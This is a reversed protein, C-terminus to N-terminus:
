CRLDGADGKTFLTEPSLEVSLNAGTM